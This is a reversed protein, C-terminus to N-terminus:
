QGRTVRQIEATIMREVMGPLHADLWDKLMPRLAAAVLEQMAASQVDSLVAPTPARKEQLAKFSGTISTGSKPSILWAPPPDNQLAADVHRVTQVAAAPQAAPKSQVQAHPQPQVPAPAGVPSPQLKVAPRLEAVPRAQPMTPRQAFQSEATALPSGVPAPEPMTVPRPVNRVPEALRVPEPPRPSGAAHYSQQAQAEALHSQVAAAVAQVASKSVPERAFIPESVPESVQQAASTERQYREAAAFSRGLRESFESVARAAVVQTQAAAAATVQPAMSAAPQFQPGAPKQVPPQPVPPTVAVIDPMPPRFREGRSNLDLIDTAAQPIPPQGYPMVPSPSVPQSVTQGHLAAHASYDEAIIRRISALIDEMSPESSVKSKAEIMQPESNTREDRSSDVNHSAQGRAGSITRRAVSWAEALRATAM